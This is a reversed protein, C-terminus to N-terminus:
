QGYVLRLTRVVGIVFVAGHSEISIASRFYVVFGVAEAARRLVWTVNFARFHHAARHRAVIVAAIAIVIRLGSVKEAQHGGIRLLSQDAVDNAAQTLSRVADLFQLALVEVLGIGRIAAADRFTKAEVDLRDECGFSFGYGGVSPNLLSRHPSPCKLGGRM